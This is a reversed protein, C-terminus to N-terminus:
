GQDNCIIEQITQILAQYHPGDVSDVTWDSLLLSRIERDRQDECPSLKDFAVHVTSSDLRYRVRIVQGVWLGQAFSDGQRPMFPIEEGRKELCILGEHDSHHVCLNARM